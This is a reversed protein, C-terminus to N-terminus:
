WIVLTSRSLSQRYSLVRRSSSFKNSSFTLFRKASNLPPKYSAFLRKVDNSMRFFAKTVDVHCYYDSHDFMFRFRRSFTTSATSFLLLLQYACSENSRDAAATATTANRRAVATVVACFEFADQM